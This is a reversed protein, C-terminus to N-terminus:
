GEDSLSRCLSRLVEPQLIEIRRRGTRVVDRDRLKHFLRAVVERSTAAASALDRQSLPLNITGGEGYEDALRLLLAALRASSDSSVYELRRGDSERLSRAVHRTLAVALGSLDELAQLFRRGEIVVADVSTLTTVTASRPSGDIVALEGLIDGPGRIALLAEAGNRSVSTVKVWGSRVVLVHGPPEGQHLLANDLRYTRARGYSELATVTEPALQALFSGASPAGPPM